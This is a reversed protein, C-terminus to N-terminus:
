SRAADMTTRPRLADRCGRHSGAGELYQVIDELLLLRPQGVSHRRSSCSRPTRSRCAAAERRSWPECDRRCRRSRDTSGRTRWPVCCRGRRSGPVVWRSTRRSPAMSSITSRCCRGWRDGCYERRDLDRLTIGDFTVTGEYGELLGGMVRLLTSQGSGDPGLLAVREGARVDLTIDGLARSSSGPYAYSVQRLSLAFGRPAADPM